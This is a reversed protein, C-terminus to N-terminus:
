VLQISRIVRGGTRGLDNLRAPSITLIDDFPSMKKFGIIHDPSLNYLSASVTHLQVCTVDHRVSLQQVTDGLAVPSSEGFEVLPV